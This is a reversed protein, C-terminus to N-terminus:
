RRIETRYTEEQNGPKEKHKFGYQAIGQNSIRELEVSKDPINKNYKSETM